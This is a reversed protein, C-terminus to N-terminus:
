MNSYLESLKSLTQIYKMSKSKNEDSMNRIPERLKNIIELIEGQNSLHGLDNTYDKEFFFRIDGEDIFLQYKNYIFKNWSKIILTPNTKKIIQFTNKATLINLDDIVVTLIFDLFEFFHTNFARLITTKNSM